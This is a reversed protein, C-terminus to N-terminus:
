FKNIKSTYEFYKIGRVYNIKRPYSLILNAKVLRALFVHFKQRCMAKYKTSGSNQPKHFEKSNYSFSKGRSLVKNVESSEGHLVKFTFWIERFKKIQCIADRLSCDLFFNKLIDSHVCRTVERCFVGLFLHYIKQNWVGYKLLEMSENVKRLWM